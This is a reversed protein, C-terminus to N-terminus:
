VCHVIIQNNFIGRAILAINNIHM